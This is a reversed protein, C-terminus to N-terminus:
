FLGLFLNLLLHFKQISFFLFYYAISVHRVVIVYLAYSGIGGTFPKDLSHQSLLIKLLVVVCPFSKFRASQTAAYSRTDTGNHGGIAIDCEFGFHSVFNMIPVRAKKRVSMQTAHQRLPRTLRYLSNVVLTRARGTPGNRKENDKDIKSVVFSVEINSDDLNAEVSCTTSSSLSVLSKGHQRRFGIKESTEQSSKHNYNELEDATDNSSDSRYNLISDDSIDENFKIYFQDANTSSDNIPCSLETDLIVRATDDRGEGTRDVVFLHSDADFAEDNVGLNNQKGNMKDFSDFIRCKVSRVPTEDKDGDDENKIFDDIVEKWKAVREQRKRNPHKSRNSALSPQTKREDNIEDDSGACPVVGWIAMDVDSEFICVSQASFSGFVQCDSADVGFTAKCTTKIQEILYDRARKESESLRVFNAFKILEDNLHDM